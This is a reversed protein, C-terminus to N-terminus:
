FEETPNNRQDVYEVSKSKIKPISGQAAWETIWVSNTLSYGRESWASSYPKLADITADETKYREYYRLIVMTIDQRNSSPITFANTVKQYIREAIADGGTQYLNSTASAAPEDEGKVEYKVDNIPSSVPNTDLNSVPNTDNPFGGKMAWNNTIIGTGNAGHYKERDIWGQPPNYKSKGAWSPTQYKWWNLIQILRKNGDKYRYIKGEKAYDVLAAEIDSPDLDDAPFVQSKILTANDQLRGQDDACRAIMGFWLLRGICDLSIFFEDEFIDSSIMRRTM